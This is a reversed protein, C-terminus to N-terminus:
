RAGGESEPQSYKKIYEIVDNFNYRPDVVELRYGNPDVWNGIKGFERFDVIADATAYFYIASIEPIVQAIAVQRGILRPPFRPSKPESM